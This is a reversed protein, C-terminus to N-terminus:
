NLVYQLSALGTVGVSQVGYLATAFPVQVQALLWIPGAANWAIGPVAAIVLGGTNQQPVGNSTDRQAQRGDVGLALAFSEIVRLRVTASWLVANGYRYGYANTTPFKGTVTLLFNWPDRHFAYLAGVYPIWAGTGLQAHQDLREGDVTADDSGTPISTGGALAVSQRSQSAISTSEWVFVRAGIDIDGLGLPTATEAPETATASLSWDKRVLPVQLVLNLRDIPSYVVVPRLTLQTLSETRDPQDDSLATASLVEFDLAFRFTGAVPMSDGALVLPDGCGCVSCARAIGPAAATLLTLLLLTTRVVTRLVGQPSPRNGKGLNPM